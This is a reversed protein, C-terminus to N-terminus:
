TRYIRHGSSSVPSHFIFPSPVTRAGLHPLRLVVPKQAGELVAHLGYLSAPFVRHAVPPLLGLLSYLYVRSSQAPDDCRFGAPESGPRHRVFLEFLPM